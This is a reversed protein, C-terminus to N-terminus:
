GGPTVPPPLPQPTNANAPPTSGSPASPSQGPPPLPVEPPAAAPTSSDAGPVAPQAPQTTPAVDAAEIASKAAALVLGEHKVVDQSPDEGNAPVAKAAIQNKAAPQAGDAIQKNAATQAAQAADAIQQAIKKAQDAPQNHLLATALIRDQWGPKAALQKIAALKQADEACLVNCYGAWARVAPSDNREANHVWLSYDDIATQLGKVDLQAQGPPPNPNAGAQAIQSRGNITYTVLLDLTDMQQDITGQTLKRELDAKQAPNNLPNPVRLMTDAFDRRYGAPGPVIGTSMTVPNTFFSYFLPM